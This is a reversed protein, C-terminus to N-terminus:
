NDQPVTKKKNQQNFSSAQWKMEPPCLAVALEVAYVGRFVRRRETRHASVIRAYRHVERRAARPRGAVFM